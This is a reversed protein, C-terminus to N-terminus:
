LIFLTSRNNCCHLRKTAKLMLVTKLLHLRNKLVVIRNADFEATFVAGYEDVTVSFPGDLLKDGSITRVVGSGLDIARIVDNDTDAVLIEGWWAVALGRPGRFRSATLAGDQLGKHGKQGALHSVEGTRVDLTAIRHNGTDGILIHEGGALLLVGEPKELSEGSCSVREVVGSARRWM